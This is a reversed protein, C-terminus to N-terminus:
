NIMLFNSIYIPRSQDISASGVMVLTEMLPLM